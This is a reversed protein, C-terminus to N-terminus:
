GGRTVLTGGKKLGATGVSCGVTSAISRRAIQLILSAAAFLTLGSFAWLPMHPLPSLGFAMVMGFGSSFTILGYVALREGESGFQVVDDHLLALGLAFVPMDYDYVYPSVLLSAMAAVGLAQRHAFHRSAWVVAALAFCAAALQVSMAFAAPFGFSRFSAYLSVMRFLPFLGQSLYVSADRISGFFAPWIDFGFMATVVMTSLLVTAAAILVAGWCRNVISYLAVAIALHPKIIMLGLPLGAITRRRTFGLCALGILTGTIFGNQGCYITILLAPFTIMLVPVFSSGAIRKLVALYAAFSVGTFLVYATGVPLLALPALLLVFQPPYGWPYVVDSGFNIKVFAALAPQDYVTHIEGHWFLRAVTHFSDFDVGSRHPQVLQTWGAFQAVAFLFTILLSAMIARLYLRRKEISYKAIEIIEILTM